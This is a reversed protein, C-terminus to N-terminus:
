NKWWMSVSFSVSLSRVHHWWHLPVYLVDGPGLDAVWATKDKYDPFKDSVDPSEIDIQSTNELLHHQHPHMNDHRSFMIFRKYGYVQCFLNEYHDHHLPSVTGTPGFWCNTVIENDSIALYDLPIIDDKLKTIHNFLEYQALYAVEDAQSLIHSSIFDKLKLLKQSWLDSTYSSGIEIPITREGFHRILYLPSWKKMAPWYNIVNKMIFPTGSKLLDLFKELTPADVSPVNVLSPLHPLPVETKKVPDNKVEIEQPENNVLQCLIDALEQVFLEDGLPAGMILGMDCSLIADSYKGCHALNVSKIFCVSRYLQRWFIDVDKWHGVNITEWISDLLIDCQFIRDRIGKEELHAVVQNTGTLIDHYIDGSKKCYYRCFGEQIAKCTSYFKLGTNLVENTQVSEFM